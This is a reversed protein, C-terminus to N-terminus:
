DYRIVRDGDGPVCGDAIASWGRHVVIRQADHCLEIRQAQPLRERVFREIDAPLSTRFRRAYQDDMPHDDVHIMPVFPALAMLWRSGVAVGDPAYGETRLWDQAHARLAPDDALGGWASALLEMLWQNCNQYTTSWAYANASYAGALLRLARADDLAARELPAAADDPLLLVSVYGTQPDDTGFLFGAPGQDYIRPKREDCAYYLQRVSWAGNRSAKLSVGAHSYRIAFRRLDTGSRSVIALTRGSGDLEDKLVAAFRLLRDQQAAALPVKRDCLVFSGSADARAAGAGALLALAIGAAALARVARPRGIL